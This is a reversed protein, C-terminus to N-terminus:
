RASSKRRSSPRSQMARWAGSVWEAPFGMLWCPFAPNPAGRKKITAYSGIPEQGSRATADTLAIHANLAIQQGKGIRRLVTHPNESHKRVDSAEPTAWMKRPAHILQTNLSTGGQPYKGQRNGTESACPTTWPACQHMQAPLPQGGAGFSQNPGGKAGDTARPTSWTMLGNLLAEGSRAGSRHKRGGQVDAVTPTPWHSGIAASDSIPPTWPALRSISTGAPTDKARWILACETSGVMALRERLRSEWSSLPGNPVPSGFSTPGCIGHTTPVLEKARSQSRSAPVLPQGFLDTMQGAPPDLPSPGFGAEQSSTANHSATLTM